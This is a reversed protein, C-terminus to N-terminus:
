SPRPRPRPRRPRGPARGRPLPAERHLEVRRAAAHHREGLRGDRARATGRAASIPEAAGAADQASAEALPESGAM